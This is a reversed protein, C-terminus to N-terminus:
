QVFTQIQSIIEFWHLIFYKNYEPFASYKPPVPSSIASSTVHGSPFYLDLSPVHMPIFENLYISHGSNQVLQVEDSSHM